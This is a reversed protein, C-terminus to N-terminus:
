VGTQAKKLLARQHLQKSVNRSLSVLRELDMQEIAAHHIPNTWSKLWGILHQRADEDGDRMSLVDLAIGLSIQGRIDAGRRSQRNGGRTNAARGTTPTNMPVANDRHINTCYAQGTKHDYVAEDENFIIDNCWGCILPDREILYEINHM